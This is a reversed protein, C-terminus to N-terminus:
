FSEIREFDIGKVVLQPQDSGVLIQHPGALIWTFLCLKSKPKVPIDSSVIRVFPTISIRKLGPSAHDM